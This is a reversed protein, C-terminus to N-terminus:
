FIMPNTANFKWFKAITHFKRGFFFHQMAWAFIESFKLTKKLILM